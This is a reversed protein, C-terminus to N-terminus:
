AKLPLRVGNQPMEQEEEISAKRGWLRKPLPLDFERGMRRSMKPRYLGRGEVLTRSGEDEGTALESVGVWLLIKRPEAWCWAWRWVGWCVM